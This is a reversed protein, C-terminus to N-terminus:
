VVCRWVLPLRHELDLVDAMARQTAVAGTERATALEGLCFEQVRPTGERGVDILRNGFSEARRGDPGRRPDAGHLSAWRSVVLLDQVEAARRSRVACTAAALTATADLDDLPGLDM